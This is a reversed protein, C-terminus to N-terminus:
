FKRGTTENDGSSTGWGLRDEFSEKRELLTKGVDVKGSYPAKTDVRVNATMWFIAIDKHEAACLTTHM